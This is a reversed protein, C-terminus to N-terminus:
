DCLNLTNLADYIKMIEQWFKHVKQMFGIIMM